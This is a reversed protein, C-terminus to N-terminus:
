TVIKWFYGSWRNMSLERNRTPDAPDLEKYYPRYDPLGSNHYLLHRISIDAKDTGRSSVMFDGLTHDLRLQAQETLTLVALTTALPKTLSALDFVTQTSVPMETNLDALGFAQHILVQGQRSAMLVGGPFVGDSVANAMLQHAKKM